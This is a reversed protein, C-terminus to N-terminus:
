LSAPSSKGIMAGNGISSGILSVKSRVIAPHAGDVAIQVSLVGTLICKGSSRRQTRTLPRVRRDFVTLIGKEYLSQAKSVARRGLTGTHASRQNGQEHGQQGTNFWQVLLVESNRATLAAKIATDNSRGWGTRWLLLGLRQYGYRHAADVLFGGAFADRV